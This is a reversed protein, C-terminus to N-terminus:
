LSYFNDDGQLYNRIIKKDIIKESIGSSYINALRNKETDINNM